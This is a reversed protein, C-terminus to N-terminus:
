RLAPNWFVFFGDAVHKKEMVIEPGIFGANHKLKQQPVTNQSPVLGRIIWINAGLFADNDNQARLERAGTTISTKKM